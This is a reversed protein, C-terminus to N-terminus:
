NQIQEGAYSLLNKEEATICRVKWEANNKENQAPPQALPTPECVVTNLNGEDFTVATERSENRITNERGAVKWTEEENAYVSQTNLFAASVSLLLSFVLLIGLKRKM